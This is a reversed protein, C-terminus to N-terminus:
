KLLQRVLHRVATYKGAGFNILPNLISGLLNEETQIKEWERELVMLWSQFLLRAKIEDVLGLELVIKSGFFYPSHKLEERLNAFEMLGEFSVKRLNYDIEKIVTDVDMKGFSIKRLDEGWEEHHRAYNTAYRVYSIWPRKYPKNPLGLEFPNKIVGRIYESNAVGEIAQAYGFLLQLASFECENMLLSLPPMLKSEKPQSDGSKSFYVKFDKENEKIFNEVKAYKLNFDNILPLLNFNAEEAQHKFIHVHKLVLSAAEVRQPSYHSFMPDSPDFPWFPNEESM